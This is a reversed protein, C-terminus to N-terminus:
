RESCSNGGRTPSRSVNAAGFLPGFGSCSCRVVVDVTACAGFLMDIATESASSAPPQHKAARQALRFVRRDLLVLAARASGPEGLRWDAWRPWSGNAPASLKRWRCWSRRRASVERRCTATSRRTSVPACWFTEHWIGSRGSKGVRKWYNRWAELHPDEKDKAFAELHEFSRWYQIVTFGATEYGLLGKEPHETLYDLMARMGKSGGLDKFARLAQLKSNIRAGILFVVFDGDIEATWRGERIDPMTGGLKSRGPPLLRGDARRRRARNALHRDSAGSPFPMRRWSSNELTLRIHDVNAATWDAFLTVLDPHLPVYRDNRLKGVPARPWHNDGILVVADADLGCLERCGPAPSSKSSSATPPRDRRPRRGDPPAADRDDLFKPLPELFCHSTAASSRTAPQADPWDWEIIREFFVRLMRLRQRQTNATLGEGRMGPQAVPM